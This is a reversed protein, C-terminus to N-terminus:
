KTEALRQEWKWASAVMEELGLEAKWGLERNSYATDAYVKEIDGPRRPGLTYNLKVGNVREFARIVELVSYGRGTGLNFFETSAKNAGAMLRECAKVHAKALDVVHIYDRIGSGDPTDYDNGFVTLKDRKGIATQTIYPMLNNPVGRPLEGILASEHAGVPNFYRLSIVKLATAKSVNLLIDECMQKTNGYPSEAKKV